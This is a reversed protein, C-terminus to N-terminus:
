QSTVDRRFQQAAQRLVRNPAPPHLLTQVLARSQSENLRLIEEQEIIAKAAGQLTDVVFDSVSRGQYAAARVILSKQEATIRAELRATKTGRRAM